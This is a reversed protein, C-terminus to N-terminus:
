GGLQGECIYWTSPTNFGIDVLRLYVGAYWMSHCIVVAEAETAASVITPAGGQYQNTMCDPSNFAVYNIYTNLPAILYFSENGNTYCWIEEGDSRVAPPVDSPLLSDCRIPIEERSILSYDYRIMYWGCEWEWQTDCKGEMAGGNYCANAHDNVTPDNPNGEDDTQAFVALTSLIILLLILLVQKM